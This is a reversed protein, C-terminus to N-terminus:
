LQVGSALYPQANGKNKIIDRVITSSIASWEPHTNLYITEISPEMAQNMLSSSRNLAIFAFGIASDNNITLSMGFGNDWYM